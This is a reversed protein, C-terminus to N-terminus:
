VDRQARIAAAVRIADRTAAVDHTRVIAAGNFVAIATASLSGPLREEAHEGAGLKAIFSKRSVGILLPHGLDNFRDLRALVRCTIEAAPVDAHTFFGIGPDLVIRKPDTGAARARRLSDALLRHVLDIPPGGTDEVALQSATLVVGKAGAAVAAMDADARLGSVDNVITAGAALAAVAVAARQTDVSVPVAVARVIREVAIEMRRREEEMPVTGRLYPATTMAGIDVIDAGEEVARCAAEGLAAGDARVSGVYFSEPSVNLAAMLRVPYGPGILVGNLDAVYM